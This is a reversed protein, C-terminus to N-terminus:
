GSKQAGDVLGSLECIADVVVGAAEADTANRWLAAEEESVGAGCALIWNEVQEVDGDFTRLRLAEARSLSRIPVEVGGVVVVSTPLPLVPLGM